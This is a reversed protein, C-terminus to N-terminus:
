TLRAYPLANVTSTHYCQHIPMHLFHLIFCTLRPQHVTSASNMHVAFTHMQLQRQIGVCTPIENRDSCKM